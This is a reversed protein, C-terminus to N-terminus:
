DDLSYSIYMLDSDRNVRVTMWRVNFPFQYGAHDDSNHISFVYHGNGGYWPNEIKGSLPDEIVDGYKCLYEIREFVDDGPGKKFRVTYEYNHCSGISLEKDIISFSPFRVGCAKELQKVSPKVTHSENVLLILGVFLAVFSIILGSVVKIAVKIVKKM